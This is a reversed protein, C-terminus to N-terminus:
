QAQKVFADISMAARRGDAVAQVATGAGRIIDGGAFIGPNNKVALTKTDVEISGPQNLEQALYKAFEPEIKQGIASIVQDFEMETKQSEDFVPHFAGQDDFVSRCYMLSVRYSSSFLKPGWCNYLKVGQRELEKAESILMPMEERNELCVLTVSEAGSEKAVLAADAAVSGGGIVMVRGKVDAKSKGRYNRLLTLADVMDVWVVGPLDIKRGHWLGPALFVAQHTERLETLTLNKGLEKGFQFSIGPIIAGNIEQTVVDPPLRFGPIAHTLMGGRKEKKEFVQVTYGLRALFHACTLGAPGSGVVAVRHPNRETVPVAWGDLQSVKGCIFAQLEAIRAPRTSFELRNCEKECLREAPCIYGCIEALPNMERMSRVAGAFNGAEVRRLFNLVDIGAPCAGTCGPDQCLQCERALRMASTPTLRESPDPPPTWPKPKVMKVYQREFPRPVYEEMGLDRLVMNAAGVGSATTAVIGIGMVTSDGCFYLNKWESRAHLRKMMEQGIMQKPGGVAGWNKLTFREITSPTGIEMVKIHRRLNPIYREVQDILKEAEQEKRRQYPESRYEPDWPRPWQKADPAIVTMVHMGEPCLSPDDLSSLFITIDHAALDHRNEIYMEIAQTGPPIAKADVGLYLVFGSMTPIFSQAWKKRGPKIHRSRILGGYLNWITANAVVRDAMIETGDVLRVGYAKGKHILIENVLHRYILQGDHKEIAKELKNSLMQPSGVPYYAGGEHNDVFMTATLLAPTEASNCYCYTGCLMDFYGLLKPDTIFKGVLDECNKFMMTGLRIVGLPHKLFTQLHQSPRMEAPSQIMENPVIMHEYLKYLHIYLARLEKEQHPFVAALEQFFREFDRWFTITRGLIHMRYLTDHPVIEIEEEIENMVFRHPNFGKEGFGFMMGVAADFTVGQRRMATCAGGPLYHQEVVLVGLGRKSLLAAATLGGIGSGIVIVDYRDQIVADQLIQV